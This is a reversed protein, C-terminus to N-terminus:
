NHVMPHSPRMPNVSVKLRPSITQPTFSKIRNLRDTAEKAKYNAILMGILPEFQIDYHGNEITLGATAKNNYLKEMEQEVVEHMIKIPVDISDPSHFYVNQQVKLRLQDRLNYLMAYNLFRRLDRKYSKKDMETMKSPDVHVQLSIKIESELADKSRVTISDNVTITKATDFDLEIPNAQYTTYLGYGLVFLVTTIGIRKLLLKFDNDTTEM